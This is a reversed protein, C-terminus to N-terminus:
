KDPMREQNPTGVDYFVRFHNGDPDTGVFEYLGFDKLLPASKITAGSILWERYLEDVTSMSTMNLWILVPGENGYGQRFRESALFIRCDGRSLGALGLDENKWDVVFGLRERYYPLATGMSRIPIEPVAGPLNLKMSGVEGM